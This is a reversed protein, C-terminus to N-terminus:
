VEKACVQEFNILAEACENVLKKSQGSIRGVANKVAHDTIWAKQM